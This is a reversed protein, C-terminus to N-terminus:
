YRIPSMVGRSEINKVVNREIKSAVQQLQEAFLNRFRGATEASAARVRPVIDDASNVVVEDLLRSPGERRLCLLTQRTKFACECPVSM